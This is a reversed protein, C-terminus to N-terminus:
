VIIRLPYEKGEITIMLPKERQWGIPLYCLGIMKGTTPAIAASTLTGIEKEGDTLLAPASVSGAADGEVRCLKRQVKNYSHLRAIVEQGIYCGKTFSVASELEAELPNHSDNLENGFAPVGTEIRLAEYDSRSLAAFGSSIFTEEV